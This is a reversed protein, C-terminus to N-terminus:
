RNFIRRRGAGPGSRGAYISPLALRAAVRAMYGAARRSNAFCRRRLAFLFSLVALAQCQASFFAQYVRLGLLLFRAARSMGEASPGAALAGIGSGSARLAGGSGHTSSSDRYGM